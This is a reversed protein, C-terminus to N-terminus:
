EGGQTNNNNIKDYLLILTCLRAYFEVTRLDAAENFGEQRESQLCLVGLIEDDVSLPIGLISGIPTAPLGQDNFRSDQPDVTNEIEAKGIGWIYGAFGEGKSFVRKAISEANIRVSEIIELQDNTNVKFLSISKDSQDKELVTICEALTHRLMKNTIEQDGQHLMYNYSKLLRNANENHRLLVSLQSHFRNIEQEMLQLAQNSKKLISENIRYKQLLARFEKQILLPGKTFSPDYFPNPLNTVATGIENNPNSRWHDGVVRTLRFLFYFVAIWTVIDIRSITKNTANSIIDAIIGSFGYVIAIVLVLAVLYCFIVMYLSLPKEAPVINRKKKIKKM